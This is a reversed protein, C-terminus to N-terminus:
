ALAKDIDSSTLTWDNDLNAIVSKMFRELQALARDTDGLHDALIALALQRPASGEYSWEFGKDDFVRVDFRADLPAGDVTVVIGDITRKGDYQKM